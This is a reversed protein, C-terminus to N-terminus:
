ISSTRADAPMGAALLDVLVPELRRRGALGTYLKAALGGIALGILGALMSAAESGTAYQGLGAGALLLIIPLCYMLLSSTVVVDEPIGVTVLDGVEFAIPDRGELAVKLYTRKSAWRALLNQGCGSKASCSGCATTSVTEVWLTDSDVAVVRGTETLM